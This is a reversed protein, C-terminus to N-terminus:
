YWPPSAARGGRAGPTPPYPPANPAGGSPLDKAGGSPKPKEISQRRHSQARRSSRLFSGGRGASAFGVSGGAHPPSPPRRICNRRAIDSLARTIPGYRRRRLIFQPAITPPHRARHPVFPRSSPRPLSGAPTTGPQRASPTPATRAVYRDIDARRPRSAGSPPANRKRRKRTEICYFCRAYFRTKGPSQLARYLFPFRGVGSLTISHSKDFTGLSDSDFPLATKIYQIVVSLSIHVRLFRAARTIDLRM